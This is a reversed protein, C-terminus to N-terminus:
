WRLWLPGQSYQLPYGEGNLDEWGLFQVPTEQKAPLNNVLQAMM